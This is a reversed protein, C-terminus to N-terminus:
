TRGIKHQPEDPQIVPRGKLLQMPTNHRFPYGQNESCDGKALLGLIYLRQAVIGFMTDDMTIEFVIKPHFNDGLLGQHAIQAAESQKRNLTHSSIDCFVRILPCADDSVGLQCFKWTDLAETEPLAMLPPMMTHEFMGDGIEAEITKNKKTTSLAGWLENPMNPWKSLNQIDYEIKKTYYHEKNENQLILNNNQLMLNLMDEPKVYFAPINTIMWTIYGPDDIAIQKVTKGKHKGFQIEDEIGFRKIQSM